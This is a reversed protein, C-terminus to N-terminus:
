LLIELNQPRVDGRRSYKIEVRLEGGEGSIDVSRVEVESGLDRRLGQTVQYELAALQLDSIPEFVKRGLGVGFRPNNLREGPATFLVALVKDRLHRDADDIVAVGDHQGGLQVSRTGFHFPYALYLDKM